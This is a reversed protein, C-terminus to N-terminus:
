SLGFNMDCKSYRLKAQFRRKKEFQESLEFHVLQRFTLMSNTLFYKSSFSCMQVISHFEIIVCTFLQYKTQLHIQFKGQAHTVAASSVNDTDNM